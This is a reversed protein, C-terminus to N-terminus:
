FHRSLLALRCDGPVGARGRLLSHDAGRGCDLAAPIRTVDMKFWIMLGTVGMIVTGWVVAWYEMKEAYGFRGIKPKERSWGALYRAACWMDALDKKVPFLDKVLRRGDPTTLLYIMHWLVSWCCCSAPLAIHGAASRNM